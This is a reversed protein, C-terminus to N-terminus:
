EEESGESRKQMNRRNRHEEVEEDTFDFFNKKRKRTEKQLRARVAEFNKLDTPTIYYVGGIKHAKLVGSRIYQKYTTRHLGKERAIDCAARAVEGDIMIDTSIWSANRAYEKVSEPDIYWVNRIKTGKIKGQRILLRAAPLECKLYQAAQLVSMSNIYIPATSKKDAM